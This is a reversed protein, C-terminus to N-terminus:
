RTVQTENTMRRVAARDFLSFNQPSLGRAWCRHIQNDTISWLRSHDRDVGVPDVNWADHPYCFAGTGAVLISWGLAGTTAIKAAVGFRARRLAAAALPVALPLIDLMYRPGYTHGGWWVSYFSYAVIQVAAAVTCALAPASQRLRWAAAIGAGAVLVVPSFVILGRNPSFLLGALGEWPRRNLSGQTAHVVPHLQEMAAAGGLPHGLWLVNTSIVAAICILLPTVLWGLSLDKRAACYALLVAVAPLVQMRSAVAFGLLAGISASRISRQRWPAHLLAIAGALSAVVSDAQWLTQSVTPWLGTGLGLGLAVLVAVRDSAYHRASWLAFLVALTVLGSATFKAVINASYLAELNVAGAHHLVFGLAAAPLVPALPYRTRWHQDRALTFGPREKLPPLQTVIEDLTLTGRLALQRAAFKTPQSDYTGIERGNANFALFVGVALLVASLASKPM